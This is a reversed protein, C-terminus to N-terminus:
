VGGGGKWLDWPKGGAWVQQCCARRGLTGAVNKRKGCSGFSEPPRFLVERNLLLREPDWHSLCPAALDGPLGYFFARLYGERGGGGNGPSVTVKRQPKTHARSGGAVVSGQGPDPGRGRLPQRGQEPRPRLCLFAKGLGEQGTGSQGRSRRHALSISWWSAM